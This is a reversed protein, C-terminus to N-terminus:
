SDDTAQADNLLHHEEIFDALTRAVLRNAYANWHAGDVAEFRRHHVAWDRSFAPRLDLFHCQDHDFCAAGVAQADPSLPTDAIDGVDLYREGHYMFVIPIGPNDRCLRQVLYRAGPLLERVEPGDEATGADGGAGAGPGADLEAARQGPLTVHANYRLYCAIASKRALRATRSVVYTASPAIEQYGGFKKGIQFFYPSPTGLEQLSDAVDGGGLLFVLVDPRYKRADERCMAACQALSAGSVGFAYAEAGGPVFSPLRAEIHQDADTLFGEIYSDGFLAILPLERSKVIRFEVASNYGAQNIHWHGARRALRGETLLGEQSGSPEYRWVKTAADQAHFPPDSAPMVARLWAEALATFVLAFVAVRVLLAFAGRRRSSSM